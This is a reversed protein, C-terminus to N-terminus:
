KAEYFRRMIVIFTNREGALKREGNREHWTCVCAPCYLANGFSNWGEKIATMTANISKNSITKRMGCNSCLITIQM